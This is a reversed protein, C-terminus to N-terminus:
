REANKRDRKLVKIEDNYWPMTPKKKVIKTKELAHDDMIKRLMTNYQAAM